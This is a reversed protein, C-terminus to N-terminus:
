GGRHSGLYQLHKLEEDDDTFTSTHKHSMKQEQTSEVIPLVRRLELRQYRESLNEVGGTLRRDEAEVTLYLHSPRDAVLKLYARAHRM